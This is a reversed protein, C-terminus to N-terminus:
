TPRSGARTASIPASSATWRSRRSTTSRASCGTRRSSTSSSSRGSSSARRAPRGHPHRDAGGQRRLRAGSGQRHHRDAAQGGAVRLGPRARPSLAHDPAREQLYLPQRRAVRGAAGAVGDGRDPVRPRHGRRLRDRLPRGSAPHGSPISQLVFKERGVVVTHGANNGGQYRVVVGVHPRSCTWSRARARTAGSRASWWSTLCRRRWTGPLAAAPGRAARWVDGDAGGGGGGRLDLIRVPGSRGRRDRHDAGLRAHQGRAYALSEALPRSIIDRAVAAGADRLRRSLALARTKDATFDIVFFDPGPLRPEAGQSAM